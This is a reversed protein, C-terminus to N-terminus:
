YYICVVKVDTSTEYHVDAVHHLLESDHLLGLAAYIIITCYALLTEAIYYLQWQLGPWVPVFTLLRQM